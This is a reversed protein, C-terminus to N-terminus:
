PGDPGSRSGPGTLRELHGQRQDPRGPHVDPWPGAPDGQRRRRHHPDPGHRRKKRWTAKIVRGEQFVLAKGSGLTKIDPRSHGPEIKTDIRFSSSCSSSTPRPSGSATPRTSTPRATSRAAPLPEDRPRLPLHHRQHPVPRPDAPVRRARRRAVADVFPRRYLDARCSRPRGSSTAGPSAPGRDLHLRQAAGPPDQDPPLGATRSGPRRRRHVAEQALAHVHADAPRRRLPRAGLPDGPGVPRPLLPRQPGSRHRRHRVGPLHAPLPDRLRRRDGPLRRPPTSAPSRAPRRSDDIMVALPLRHAAAPAVPLGTLDGPLTSPTPTATPEAAPTPPRRPPRHRARRRRDADAHRRGGPVAARPPASPGCAAPWRRARGPLGAVLPPRSGPQRRHHRHM